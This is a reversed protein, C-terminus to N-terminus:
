SRPWDRVLGSRGARPHRPPCGARPWCALCGDSRRRRARGVKLRVPPSGSSVRLNFWAPNSRRSQHYIAPCRVPPRSPHAPVANLPHTWLKRLPEFAVRQRVLPLQQTRGELQGLVTLVGFIENLFGNGPRTSRKVPERRVCIHPGPQMADHEVSENIPVSFTLALRNQSNERCLFQRDARWVIGSCRRYRGLIGHKGLDRRIAQDCRELAQRFVEALHQVQNVNFAKAVALGGDNHVRWEPSHHGPQM